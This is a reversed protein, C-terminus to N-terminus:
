TERKKGDLDAQAKAASAQDLQKEAKSRGFKLANEDARKRAEQRGKAKRAKNLNIPTTM